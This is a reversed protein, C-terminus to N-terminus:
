QGKDLILKTIINELRTAYEHEGLTDLEICIDELEEILSDRGM